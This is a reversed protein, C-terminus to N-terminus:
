CNEHQFISYRLSSSRGLEMPFCMVCSCMLTASVQRSLPVYQININKRKKKLSYKIGYHLRIVIVTYFFLLLTTWFVDFNAQHKCGVQEVKTKLQFLCVPEDYPWLQHANRGGRGECRNNTEWVNEGTRSRRSRGPQLFDTDLQPRCSRVAPWWDHRRGNSINPM